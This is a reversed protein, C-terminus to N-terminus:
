KGEAEETTKSSDKVDGGQLAGSMSPVPSSKPEESPQSPNAAVPASANDPRGNTPASSEGEM